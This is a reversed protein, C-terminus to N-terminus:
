AGCTERVVLDTPLRESALNTAESNLLKSLLLRGALATDQRVTTLAPRAYQALPVDDYGIVSVDRPVSRGARELARIAGLAILDSAAVIGDFDIRRSILGDIAAQAAEFDFSARVTIAPDVSLGAEQHATLYGQHRQFIEPAEIDGLFVIRKRGLRALHLTARRGGLPNDGGVSCYQQNPIQAGWVAFRTSTEALQNFAAHLSSQGLFIIGATRTTAMLEELDAPGSPALHSVIFDCGVRRAAEGLGAVLELTFPDSLRADRGQPRPIVIAVAAAAVTPGSPMYGRFPYDHERALKWLLQKTQQNVASSDNLARSVTTISVGALRALDELRTNRRAAM